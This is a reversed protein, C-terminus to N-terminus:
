AAHHRAKWQARTIRLSPHDKHDRRVARPELRGTREPNVRNAIEVLMARYISPGAALPAHGLAPRFSQIARVAQVFSIRLPDPMQTTAAAERMLLRVVNLAIMRALIEKRVEDPKPSRLVNTGL